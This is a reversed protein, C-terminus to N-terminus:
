KISGMEDAVMFDRKSERQVAASQRPKAVGPAAWDPLPLKSGWCRASRPPLGPSTPAAAGAAGPARTALRVTAVVQSRVKPLRAAAAPLPLVGAVGVGGRGAGGRAM